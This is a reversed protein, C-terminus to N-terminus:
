EGCEYAFDTIRGQRGEKFRAHVRTGVKLAALTEDVNGLPLGEVFNALATDAGDLQVYAIAYPPPPLGAFPEYVLTFSKVTGGPGVEALESVERFCRECFSRPPVYVKQCGACRVGMIRGQEKLASFFRSLVKGASYRFQLHWEGEFVLNEVDDM